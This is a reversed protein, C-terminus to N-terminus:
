NEDAAGKPTLEFRYGLGHVTKIFKYNSLKEVKERLRQIHVDITRSSGMYETGWVLSTLKVRSFLIHPNAALTALLQCENPRISVGLGNVSLEHRIPDLKVDGFSLVTSEDRPKSRRLQVRLRALLEEFSFPKTLYDDAGVDLGKIKDADTGLATIMIIPTDAGRERLRRCVSMGDLRPLLLDLLIVDPQEALAKELGKVGDAAALIDFGAARLNYELTERIVADDEIILVRHM